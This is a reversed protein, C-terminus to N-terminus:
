KAVERIFSKIAEVLTDLQKDTIILPPQIRLVNNKIGGHGILIRRKRCIERVQAAEDSAPTKAKQDKVLEIGIMLGKGRVDGILKSTTKLEQLRKILAEGKKAAQRGNKDLRSLDVAM